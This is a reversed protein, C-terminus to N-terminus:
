AKSRPPPICCGTGAKRHRWFLHILTACGVWVVMTEGSPQVCEGAAKRSPANPDLPASRPAPDQWPSIRGWPETLPSPESGEAEPPASRAHLNTTACDAPYELVQCPTSSYRALAVRTGRTSYELVPPEFPRLRSGRSRRRAREM